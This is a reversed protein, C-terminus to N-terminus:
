TPEFGYTNCCSFLVQDFRNSEAQEEREATSVIKALVVCHTCMCMAQSTVAQSENTSWEFAILLCIAANLFHEYCPSVFLLEEAHCKPRTYSAYTFALLLSLFHNASVRSKLSFTCRVKPRSRKTTSAYVRAFPLCLSCVSYAARSEHGVPHKHMICGFSLRVSLRSKFLFHKYKSSADLCAFHRHSLHIANEIEAFKSKPTDCFRKVLELYYRDGYYFSSAGNWRCLVNSYKMLAFLLLCFFVYTITSIHVFKCVSTYSKPFMAWSILDRRNKSFFNHHIM